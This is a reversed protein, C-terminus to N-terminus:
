LAATIRPHSGMKANAYNNRIISLKQLIDKPTWNDEVQILPTGNYSIYLSDQFDSLDIVREAEKMIDDQRQTAYKERLTRIFEMDIYLTILISRLRKGQMKM